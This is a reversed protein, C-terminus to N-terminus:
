FSDVILDAGTLSNSSIEVFFLPQSYSAQELISVLERSKDPLHFFVRLLCGVQISPLSKELHRKQQHPPSQKEKKYRLQNAAKCIHFSLGSRRKLKVFISNVFSYEFKNINVGTSLFPPYNQM